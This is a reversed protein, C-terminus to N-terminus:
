KKTAETLVNTALQTLLPTMVDEGDSKAKAQLTNQVKPNQQGPVVLQYQVTIDDKSKIQGTFQAMQNSAAQQAAVSAAQSAAAGAMAGGMGGGMMPAMSAVPAAMKMFNGFGGKQPKKVVVTSYLVYDCEKQQAEAQIQIPIRSDLAAIEVAPGSMLQILANRIPTGYDQGANTGQGVQADPTVVGIRIHGPQKPGLAQPAAVRQSAPQNAGPMGPMQPMMNGYGAAQAQAMMQQQQAMAQQQMAMAAAPGTIPNMMLLPNPAKMQPAPQQPPAQQYAQAYNAGPAANPQPTQPVGRLEAMTTVQRYDAPAEFLTADLSTKQIDTVETSITMPQNKDTTITMTEQVPYGPKISSDNKYVLKDMCGGPDDGSSSSSIPTFARCSAGPVTKLDIYWGDIDYTTAAKSCATPSPETTITMKLHRATYGLIQKKEGLDKVATRYTVVGGATAPQAPADKKERDKAGAKPEAAAEEADPRVLFSKTSDQLTLTRHLDCQRISTNFVTGGMQMTSRERSGKILSQTTFEAGNVTMKKTVTLDDAPSASLAAAFSLSGLAAVLYFPAKKM